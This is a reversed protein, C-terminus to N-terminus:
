KISKESSVGHQFIKRFLGDDSQTEVVPNLQNFLVHKKYM